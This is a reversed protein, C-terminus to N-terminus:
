PLESLWLYVGADVSVSVNLWSAAAAPMCFNMGAAWVGMLLLSQAAPHDTSAVVPLAVHNERGDVEEM